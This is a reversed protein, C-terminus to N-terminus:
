LAQLVSQPATDASQATGVANEAPQVFIGAEAWINGAPQFPFKSNEPIPMDSRSKSM